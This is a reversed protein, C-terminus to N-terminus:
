FWTDLVSQRKMKSYADELKELAKEVRESSFDRHYCLFDMVAEKEPAKWELSYDHTVEISLFIKRIPEVQFNLSLGEKEVVKEISGHKKILKLAKKPGIGEVGGPNFDTGILIGIDILQEMTIELRKLIKDIYLIEPKVTVYIRKRPLKRKGTITLNRVLRTSGFLLADYDQSAASFVDGCKVMYAAQAEGESPAQVVPIGLFDLLKKSEEIVDHSIKTSQIAYTKAEEMREEKLAEHWKKRAEERKKNREEVTHFKLQPPRGDFVYAPRIGMEILNVNRYLLGSLHSTVRGESDRLPEGTSQRIISLFQYLTNFADVAVARGKLFDFDIVESSVIDGLQVGM